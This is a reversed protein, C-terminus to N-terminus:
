GIFMLCLLLWEGFEVDSLAFSADGIEGDIKGV